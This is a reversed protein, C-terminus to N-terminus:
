SSTVVYLVESWFLEHGAIVEDEFLSEGEKQM